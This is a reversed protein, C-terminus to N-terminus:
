EDPYQVRVPRTHHLGERHSADLLAESEPHEHLQVYSLQDACLEDRWETRSANINQALSHLLFPLGRSGKKSKPRFLAGEARRDISGNNTLAQSCLVRNKQQEILGNCMRDTMTNRPLGKREMNLM